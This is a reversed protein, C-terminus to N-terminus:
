LRLLRAAEKVKPPVNDKKFEDFDKGKPLM